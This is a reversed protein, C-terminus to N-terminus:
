HNRSLPVALFLDHVTFGIDTLYMKHYWTGNDPCYSDVWNRTITVLCSTEMDPRRADSSTYARLEDSTAPRARAMRLLKLARANNQIYGDPELIKLTKNSKVPMSIFHDAPRSESALIQGPSAAQASFGMFMIGCILLIKVLRM